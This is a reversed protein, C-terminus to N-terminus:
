RSNLPEEVFRVRNSGRIGRNLKSVGPSIRKYFELAEDKTRADVLIRVRRVGTDDMEITAVM